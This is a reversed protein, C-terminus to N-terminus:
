TSRGGNMNVNVNGTSGGACAVDTSAIEVELSAPESITIANINAACGNSDTVAVSYSGDGVGMLNRTTAGTNWNFHYPPLGGSVQTYINANTLANCTVNTHHETLMLPNSVALVAATTATCGNNDTVVVSYTGTTLGQPDEMTGGTNWLYDMPPVGGTVTTNISGNSGGLCLPDAKSVAIQMAVPQTITAATTASCSNADTVTLNYTGASLGTRNPTVIGVGWNYSYAATGGTAVTNITGNNGGFCTVNTASAIAVSLASAPQTIVASVTASCSNADTVTLNYTGASLRTRNPATIGGGWNYIYGTTGGSVTTTIAGNNGGFCLVNTASSVAVALASAPQTITASV